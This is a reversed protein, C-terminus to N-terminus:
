PSILSAHPVGSLLQVGTEGVLVVLHSSEKPGAELALGLQEGPALKALDLRVEVGANRLLQAVARVAVSDDASHSLFVHAV